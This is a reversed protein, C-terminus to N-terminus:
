EEVVTVTVTDTATNGEADRVELEVVWDGTEEVVMTDALTFRCNSEVERIVKGADEAKAAPAQLIVWKYNEIDGTSECGDFTPAAGVVVTFNDGADAKLSGDAGESDNGCAALTALLLGLFFVRKVM